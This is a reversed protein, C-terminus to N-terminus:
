SHAAREREAAAPSNKFESFAEELRFGNVLNVDHCTGCFGSTTLQFFPEAKTHIARGAIAEITHKGPDFPM